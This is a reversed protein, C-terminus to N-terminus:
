VPLVVQKLFGLEEWLLKQEYQCVTKNSKGSLHSFREHLKDDKFQKQFKPWRAM